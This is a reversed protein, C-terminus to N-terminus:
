ATYATRLCRLTGNTRFPAVRVISPDSFLFPSMGNMSPVHTLEQKFPPSVTGEDDRQGVTVRGREGKRLKDMSRM